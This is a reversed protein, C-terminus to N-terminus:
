YFINDFSQKSKWCRGLEYFLHFSKESTTTVSVSKDRSFHVFICAPGMNPSIVGNERLLLTPLLTCYPRCFRYENEKSYCYYCVYSGNLLADGNVSSPMLFLGRNIHHLKQPWLTHFGAFNISSRCNLVAIGALGHLPPFDLPPRFYEFFSSGSLAAPSTREPFVNVTVHTSPSTWMSKRIWPLRLILASPM